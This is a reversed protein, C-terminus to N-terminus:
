ILLFERPSLLETKKHKKQLPWDYIALGLIFICPLLMLLLMASSNSAFYIISFSNKEQQNYYNPLM